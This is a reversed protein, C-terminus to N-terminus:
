WLRRDAGADRARKARENLDPTAYERPRKQPAGGFRGEDIEGEEPEPVRHFGLAGGREPMPFGPRGPHPPMFPPMGPLGPAAFLAPAGFPLRLGAQQQQQQQQQHLHPQPHFAFHNPQTFQASYYDRGYFDTQM